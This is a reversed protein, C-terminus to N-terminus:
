RLDYAQFVDIVLDVAAEFVGRQQGAGGAGQAIAEFATDLVQPAAVIDSPPLEQKLFKTSPHPPPMRDIVLCATRGGHMWADM